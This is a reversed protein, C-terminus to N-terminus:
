EPPVSCTRTSGLDGDLGAWSAGLGVVKWVVVVGGSAVVGGSTLTSGRGRSGCEPLVQTYTSTPPVVQGRSGNCLTPSRNPESGM